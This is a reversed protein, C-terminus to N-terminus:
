LGREGREGRSQRDGQARATDRKHRECDRPSIFSIAIAKQRSSECRGRTVSAVERALLPFRSQREGHARAADREHRECDRPRFLLIAIVSRGSSKCCGERSAQEREPRDVFDQRNIRVGESNDNKPERRRGKGTGRAAEM